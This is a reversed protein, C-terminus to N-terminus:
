APFSDLNAARVHLPVRAQVLEKVRRLRSKLAHSSAGNISEAIADAIGSDMPNSGYFGSLHDDSDAVPGTVTFGYVDGWVWAGYVDAQASMDRDCATLDLKGPKAHPAGVQEAWEPTMVILGYVSDGQCYGNRQFTEAPIGALRYMDRLATLYDIGHGWTEARMNHLTDIFASSRAGSLTDGSYRQEERVQQEHSEENLDLARCIKRWNRSVWADTVRDFFSELSAGGYETFGDRLSMWIAPSNGEWADYPSEADQDQWVEVSYNGLQFTEASVSHRYEMARTIDKASLTM